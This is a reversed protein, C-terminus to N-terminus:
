FFLSVIQYFCNFFRVNSYNVFFILEFVTGFFFWHKWQNILNCKDSVLGCYNQKIMISNFKLHVLTVARGRRRGISASSAGGVEAAASTPVVHSDRIWCIVSSTRVFRWPFAPVSAPPGSRGGRSVVSSVGRVVVNSIGPGFVVVITSTRGSIISRPVRM